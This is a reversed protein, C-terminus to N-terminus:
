PIILVQGAVVTGGRQLRDKNAMYIQAWRTSDCLMKGAISQLTDGDQVTYVGARATCEGSRRVPPM